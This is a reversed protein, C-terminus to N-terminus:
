WVLLVKGDKEIAVVQQYTKKGLIPEVLGRNKSSVLEKKTTIAHGALRLAKKRGIGHVSVVDIMDYPVGYLVMLELAKVYEKDIGSMRLGAMVREIDSKMRYVLSSLNAPVDLGAIWYYLATAYLTQASYECKVLRQENIDSPITTEFALSPIEALAKAIIKPTKPRPKLNRKLFVLDLPDLYLFASARCISSGVLDKTIVGYSILLELANEVVAEDLIGQKFALTRKLFDFIGRRDLGERSIFSCLHFYLRNPLVSKIDEVNLIGKVLDDKQYEKVLFHVTGKTSLGYRGIRGAMQKLEYYPVDELGRHAGVIIGVDAPMNIGWALTSTSVLVKLKKTRYGLEIKAREKKSLRSNHFPVGLAKSISIGKAISHVFILVQADKYLRLINKIHKIADTNFYWEKNRCSLFEFDLKIPRWSTEIIETPKGNLSTLWAALRDVNPMTASLFIIRADKNIASFRTLGVEFADGRGPVTLLHAEDCVVCEIKELWKQRGRSKSDLSETTMLVLDQGSVNTKYDSTIAIISNVKSKWDQLKETTLAKLPSLYLGKKCLKLYQEAVITKGSSTPALVVVNCDEDVLKATEQQLPNYEINSHDFNM